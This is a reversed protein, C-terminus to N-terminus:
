KLEAYLVLLQNDTADYNRLYVPIRAEFDYDGYMGTGPNAKTVFLIPEKETADYQGGTDDGYDWLIGTQFDSSNTSNIVPVYYTLTNFVTFNDTTIPEGASLFTENVSDTLNTMNLTSDLEGFDDAHTGNSANRGLGWLASFDITGEYDTIFVIAGEVDIVNWQLLTRNYADGLVLSGSLNGVLYMWASITITANNINNSENEEQMSGNTEMPPDVVVFINHSGIVTLWTVNATANQGHAIDITQNEGIQDNLSYNGHYFAVKVDDADGEGVNSITANITINTQEPPTTNSFAIAVLVFDPNSEITINVPTFNTAQETNNAMVWLTYSGRGFKTSNFTDNYYTGTGSYPLPSWGAVGEKSFNGSSNGITYWVTDVQVYTTNTVSANVRQTGRVVQSATPSIVTVSPPINFTLNM